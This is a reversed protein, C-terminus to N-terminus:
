RYYREKYGTEHLRVTDVVNRSFDDLRDQESNKVAEKFIAINKENSIELSVETHVEMDEQSSIEDVDVDEEVKTMASEEVKILGDKEKTNTDEKEVRVDKVKSLEAKLKAAAAM